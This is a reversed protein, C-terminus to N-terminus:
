QIAGANAASAAEESLRAARRLASALRRAQQPSLTAWEVEEIDEHVGAFAVLGISPTAEDHTIPCRQGGDFCVGVAALTGFLAFEDGDWVGNRARKELSRGIPLAFGPRSSKWLREFIKM